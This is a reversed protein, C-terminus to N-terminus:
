LRLSFMSRSAASASYWRSSAISLCNASPPSKLVSDTSVACFLTALFAHSFDRGIKCWGWGCLRACESVFDCCCTGKAKGACCTCLGRSSLLPAFVLKDSFVFGLRSSPSIRDTWCECAGECTLLGHFSELNAYSLVPETVCLLCADLDDSEFSLTSAFSNLNLGAADKLGAADVVLLDLMSPVDLKLTAAGANLGVAEVKVGASSLGSASAGIKLGATM